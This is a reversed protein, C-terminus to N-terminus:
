IVFKSRLAIGCLMGALENKNWSVSRWSNLTKAYEYAFERVM